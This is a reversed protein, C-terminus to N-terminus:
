ALVRCTRRSMRRLRYWAVLGPYVARPPPQRAKELDTWWWARWDYVFLLADTRAMRIM